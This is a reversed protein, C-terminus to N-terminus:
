QSLSSARIAPQDEADAVLKLFHVRPGALRNRRKADVALHVQPLAEIAIRRGDVHLRARWAADELVQQNQTGIITL